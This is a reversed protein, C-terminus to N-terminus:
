ARRHSGIPLEENEAACSPAQAAITRLCLPSVARLWQRTRSRSPHRELVSWARLLALALRLDARPCGAELRFMQRYVEDQLRATQGSPIM